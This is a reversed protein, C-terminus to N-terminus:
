PLVQQLTMGRAWFVRLDGRGISPLVGFDPAQLDTIGLTEPNGILVPAGHRSPYRATVLVAQNALTRAVPRMSVVLTGGLDGALTNSVTTTYVPPAASSVEVSARRMPADLTHSFGFLILVSHKRWYAEIDTLEAVPHGHQWVRYRLLM